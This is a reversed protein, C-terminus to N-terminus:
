KLELETGSDVPYLYNITEEYANVRKKMTWMHKMCAFKFYLDKIAMINEVNDFSIILLGDPAHTCTTSPTATEEDPAM